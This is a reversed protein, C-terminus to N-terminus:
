GGDGINEWTSSGPEELAQLKKTTAQLKARLGELEQDYNLKV